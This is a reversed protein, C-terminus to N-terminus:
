FLELYKEIAQSLEWLGVGALQEEKMLSLRDEYFKRNPFSFREDTLKDIIMLEKERGEWKFDYSNSNDIIEKLNNRDYIKGNKTKGM